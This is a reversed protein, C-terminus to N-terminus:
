APPLFLEARIPLHDSGTAPLTDVRGVGIARGVFMQDIPLLPLPWRRGGLLAPFSFRARTIRRMPRLGGDLRAMAQGWPTLNFDGALVFRDGPQQGVADILAARFDAQPGAPFPWPPHVTAVRLVGAGPLAIDGRYLPPGVREGTRAPLRWRVAGMPLRSLIALECSGCGSRWPYRAALRQLVPGARKAEQLLLIDAGSDALVRAMRAPDDGGGRLNHTVIVVRTAGDPGPPGAVPATAEVLLPVFALLLGSVAPALVRARGRDPSLALAALLAVPVLPVFSTFADLTPSVIGAPLCALIAWGAVLLVTAMGSRIRRM